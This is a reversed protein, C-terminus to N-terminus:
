GHGMAKHGGIDCAIWADLCPDESAASSNQEPQRLHVRVGDTVRVSWM